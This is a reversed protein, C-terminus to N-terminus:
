KAIWRITGSIASLVLAALIFTFLTNFSMPHISFGIFTAGPFHFAKISINPVFVTLLYLLIANTFISFLGLSIMNLPFTLVNFIPKILLFLVTLVIGSILYTLIGGYIHVGSVIFTVLYLSLAYILTNRILAKFM